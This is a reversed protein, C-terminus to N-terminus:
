QCLESRSLLSCWASSREVMRVETFGAKRGWSEPQDNNTNCDGSSPAACEVLNVLKEDITMAAVVAAARQAPDLGMQCVSNNHLPGSVCDPYQVSMAGNILGSVAMTALLGSPITM